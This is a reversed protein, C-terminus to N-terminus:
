HTLTLFWQECEVESGLPTLFNPTLLNVVFSEETKFFGNLM